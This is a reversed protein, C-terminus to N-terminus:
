LFLCLRKDMYKLSILWINVIWNVIQAEGEMDVIM